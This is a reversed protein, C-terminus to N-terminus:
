NESKVTIEVETEDYASRLTCVVFCRDLSFDYDWCPASSWRRALLVRLRWAGAGVFLESVTESEYSLVGSSNSPSLIRM